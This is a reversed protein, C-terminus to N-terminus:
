VKSNKYIQHIKTHASITMLSLNNINNNHKDCDIHHVVFGKPMETIGLHECIVKHHLFIHKSGKRGTYWDPKLVMLYGNGDSIEGKYNHHNEKTKGSMPNKEEQKSLSYLKRKREAVFMQSFNNQIIEQFEYYDLPKAQKKIDVVSMNTNKFLNCVIEEQQKSYKKYNSKSEFFPKIDNERMVRKMTDPKLNFKNCASMITNGGAIFEKIKQITEEDFKIKRM